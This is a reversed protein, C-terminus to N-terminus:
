ITGDFGSFAATRGDPSVAWASPAPYYGEDVFLQPQEGIAPGAAKRVEKGTAADLVLLPYPGPMPIRFPALPVSPYTEQLVLWAGGKTFTVVPVSLGLDRSWR